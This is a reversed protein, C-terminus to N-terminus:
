IQVKIRAAEALASWRLGYTQLLAADQPKPWSQGRAAPARGTMLCVAGATTGTDGAALQVGDASLAALMDLYDGNRALPGEVIVPGRAGILDLCTRTMLALYWALALMKEGGTQVPKTWVFDQGQFPGSQSVVAPLISVDQALVRARDALDPAASEGLAIMDFERGGMFRASPVAQGQGGVNVLVDRASDLGLQAGGIGMCVTWTGSSVVSFPANQKLLHPYLSANSDHIGVGVPIGARLGLAAAVDARLPGLVANPQRPTAFKGGLGLADVLPSFCSQWPNWLDTHCGLSCVDCAMQGTLRWGWYQPYTLVHAVRAGLDPDRRLQWFLQAGLNLGLPLRPSGTVSFAPRLAEYAQALDGPGDHEYDLAPAALNGQADLLVAAAGHTTIAIGDIGFRSQFEQLGKAFFAWLGDLDYHPYPPAQVVANPRTILALESLSDADVVALKANTKGIDIVALHRM